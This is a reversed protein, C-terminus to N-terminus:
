VRSKVLSLLLRVILKYTQKQVAIGIRNLHQAAARLLVHNASVNPSLHNLVSLQKERLSRYVRETSVGVLLQPPQFISKGSIFKRLCPLFFM